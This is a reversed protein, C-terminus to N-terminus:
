GMDMSRQHPRAGAALRQRGNRPLRCVARERSAGRLHAQRARGRRANSRSSDAARGHGAIRCRSSHGGAPRGRGAGFQRNALVAGSGRGSSGDGSRPVDRALDARAPRRFYLTCRRTRRRPGVPPAGGSRAGKSRRRLWRRLGRVARVGKRRGAAPVRCQLRGPPVARSEM